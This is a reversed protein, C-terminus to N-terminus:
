DYQVDRHHGLLRITLPTSIGHCLNLWYLAFQEFQEDATYKNSAGLAVEQANLEKATKAIAYLPNNTPVILPKVEKGTAEAKQGVATLLEQDYVDLMMEPEIIDGHPMLKATMVVVDTTAPDSERLTKELMFLNQPSRIAVLKRYPKELSLSAPNVAPAA